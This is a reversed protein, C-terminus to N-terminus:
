DDYCRPALIIYFDKNEITIPYDYRLSFEGTISWQKFVDIIKHLKDLNYKSKCEIIYKIENENYTLNPKKKLNDETVFEELLKYGAYTKYGIATTFDNSLLVKDKPFNIQAINERNGVNNKYFIKELKKKTKEFIKIQESDFNLFDQESEGFGNIKTDKKSVAM